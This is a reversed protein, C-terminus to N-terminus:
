ARDEPPVLTGGRRASSTEPPVLTGGRRPVTAVAVLHFPTASTPTRAFGGHIRVEDLGADAMLRRLEDADFFQNEHREHCDPFGPRHLTWDVVARRRSTDITTQSVRVEGTGLRRERYPEFAAMADANWVEVVAIGGPRIARAMGSLTAAVGCPTGAYGLSDFLCVAADVSAERVLSALTTMDGRVLRTRPLRRRAIALMDESRDIGIVDIGAAGFAEAHRGTGCAVDLLRRPLSGSVRVCEGVIWASEGGYDKDAYCADYTRAFAGAYQGSM